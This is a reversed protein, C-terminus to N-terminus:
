LEHRGSNRNNFLFRRQRWRRQRRVRGRHNWKLRSVVFLVNEKRILLTIQKVRPSIDMDIPHNYKDEKGGSTMIRISGDIWM